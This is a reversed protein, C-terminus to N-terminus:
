RTNLKWEYDVSHGCVAEPAGDVKAPTFKAERVWKLAAQDLSAHESSGAVSASTVRGRADLCVNLRTTGENGKRVDAAPYPPAAAPLLKALTRVPAKPPAVRAEPTGTGTDTRARPGPDAIIIIPPDDSEFTPVDVRPLPRDIETDNALDFTRKIELPPPASMDPIVNFILKEELVKAIQGGMGVVVALALVATTTVATVGGALRTSSSARERMAGYM